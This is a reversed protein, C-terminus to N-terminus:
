LLLWLVLGGFPIFRLWAKPHHAAIEGLLAIQLVALLLADISFALFLRDHSFQFAGYRFREPLDGLEPYAWFFWGVAALGVCLGIAGFIRSIWPNTHPDIPPNPSQTSRLAMVPLLLANTLFLALTVLLTRPLRQSRRDLWFLPLLLLIWVEVLNFLAQTVPHVLPTELGHWGLANLLPLIFFFNASEKVVERLTFLQVAWVPEGPVLQGPPSLLLVYIYVAAALWLLWSKLSQPPFFPTKSPQPSDPGSLGTAATQVQALAPQSGPIQSQFRPPVTRLLPMLLRLLFFAAKGPKTPAEVLDRAFILKQSNEDIRCFSVGRGNPIPVGGLEVHWLIGVASPDGITIDDIVFRLDPPMGDCSERLLECVAAKGQFPQSFNLDQYLCRDDVQAFAKELDRDNIAQYFDQIVQHALPAPTM